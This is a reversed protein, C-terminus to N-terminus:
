LMLDEVSFSLNTLIGTVTAGQNCKIKISIRQNAVTPAFRGSVCYNFYYNADVRYRRHFQTIEVANSMDWLTVDVVGVNKDLLMSFSVNINLMINTANNITIEDTNAVCSLSMPTSNVNNNVTLSTTDGLFVNFFNNNITISTTLNAANDLKLVESIFRNPLKVRNNGSDVTLYTVTAASNQFSFLNFVNNIRMRYDDILTNKIDLRSQTNLSTADIWGWNATAKQGWNWRLSANSAYVCANTTGVVFIPSNLSSDTRLAMQFGNGSGVFTGDSSWWEQGNIYLVAAGGGARLGYGWANNIPVGDKLQFPVQATSNGWYANNNPVKIPLLLSADVTKNVWKTSALDYALVQNNALTGLNLNSFYSNNLALQSWLLGSPNLVNNIDSILVQFDNGPAAQQAYTNNGTGVQIRGKATYKGNLINNVGTSFDSVDSTTPQRWELGTTATSKGFLCKTDADPGALQTYSNTGTGVNIISKLPYKTNAYDDWRQFTFYMVGGGEPIMSTDLSQNVWDGASKRIVQGTTAANISVDTLSNLDTITSSPTNWQVNGGVVTLVQNDTGKPLRNVTGNGTGVILDGLAEVTSLSIKGDLSTKLGTIDDIEALSNVWFGDVGTGNTPNYMLFMKDTPPEDTMVDQLGHLTTVGVQPAQWQMNGTVGNYTLVDNHNIAVPLRAINGNRRILIDENGTLIELLRTQIATSDCYRNNLTQPIDDTTISQNTWKNNGTSYRLFQNNQINLIGVDNLGSLNNIVAPANIWTVVGGVVSLIQTNTGIGLRSLIGARRILIDENTTLVNLLRNNVRTDTYFLNTTGELLEDTNIQAYAISLANSRLYTGVPGRNLGEINGNNNFLLSANLMTGLLYDTVRQTTYYRRNIDLGEPVDDTTISSDSLEIWTNGDYIYTNGNGTVKCVDGSQVTLNDRDTLTAVVNVSSIFLQRDADTVNGGTISIFQM